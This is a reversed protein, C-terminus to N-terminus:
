FDEEKAGVILDVTKEKGDEMKFTLQIHTGPPLGYSVTLDFARGFMGGTKVKRKIHGVGLMERLRNFKPIEYNDVRVLQWGAKIGALDA